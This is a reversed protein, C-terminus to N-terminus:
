HRYSVSCTRFTFSVPVCASASLSLSSWYLLLLLLRSYYYYFWHAHTYRHWHANQQSLSQDFRKFGRETSASQEVRCWGWDMRDKRLTNVRNKDRSLSLSDTITSGLLVQSSSFFFIRRGNQQQHEQGNSSQATMTKLHRRERDLWKFLNWLCLSPSVFVWKHVDRELQQQQQQQKANTSNLKFRFLQFSVSICCGHSNGNRWGNVVAGGMWSV